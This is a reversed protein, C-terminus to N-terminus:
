HGRSAGALVAENQQSVSSINDLVARVAHMRYYVYVFYMAPVVLLTVGMNTTHGAASALGAVAAGVLFYPFTWEYCQAWVNKLSQGEVLSIVLSVMSTNLVVYVCAGVVMMAAASSAGLIVPLAHAAWFAAATCVTLCAGNFFVQIFKPPHLPKWLSQVLAGGLSILLTESFSFLAIGILIFVFNTSISTKLGPLRIKMASAAMALGFFLVFRGLNEPNWRYAAVSLAVAAVVAIMAIYAKALNPMKMTEGRTM